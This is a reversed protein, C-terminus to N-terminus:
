KAFYQTLTGEYGAGVAAAYILIMAADSANAVGDGNMDGVIGYSPAAPETSPEAGDARFTIGNAKAYDEAASGSAGCIVFDPILDGAFTYGFAQSGITTVTEPITVTRMASCGKFAYAGISTVGSGISVNTLSSCCSFANKDISAVSDPITVTTMSVCDGFAWAGISEASDPIVATSLFRCDYFVYEEIKKVGDPVTVSTLSTCERFAHSGIETVGDPITVAELSSCGYFASPAIYTVSDPIDVVSLGTLKWFVGKGIGTVPQDNVAAPISIYQIEAKQDDTLASYDPAYLMVIEWAESGDAPRRYYAGYYDTCLDYYGEDEAQATISGCGFAMIGALLGALIRQKM